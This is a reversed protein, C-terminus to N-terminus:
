LSDPEIGRRRCNQGTTMSTM